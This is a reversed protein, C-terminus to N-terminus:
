ESIENQYELNKITKLIENSILVYGSLKGLDQVHEVIAEPEIFDVDLRFPDNIYQQRKEPISATRIRLNIVSKTFEMEEQILANVIRFAAITETNNINM